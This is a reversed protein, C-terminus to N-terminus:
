EQSDESEEENAVEDLIEEESVLTEELSKNSYVVLVEDSLTQNNEDVSVAKLYNAGSELNIALSYNGEGDSTTYFDNENVFIVVPSNVATPNGAITLAREEFVAENEPHSIEMPERPKDPLTEVVAAPSETAPAEQEQPVIMQNQYVFFSVGGAVLIGLVIALIVEKKM